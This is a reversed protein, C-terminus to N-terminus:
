GIYHSIEVNNKDKAIYEPLPTRLSVETEIHLSICLAEKSTPM